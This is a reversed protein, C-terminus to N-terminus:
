RLTQKRHQLKRNERAVAKQADAGFKKCSGTHEGKKCGCKLM